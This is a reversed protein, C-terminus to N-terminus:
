VIRRSEVAGGACCLLAVAWTSPSRDGPYIVIRCSRKVAGCSQDRLKLLKIHKYRSLAPRQSPRLCYSVPM